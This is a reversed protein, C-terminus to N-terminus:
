DHFNFECKKKGIINEGYINGINIQYTDTYTTKLTTSLKPSVPHQPNSVRQESPSLARPAGKM